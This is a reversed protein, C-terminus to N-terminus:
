YKRKSNKCKPRRRKTRGGVINHPQATPSGSFSTATSALGTTPTNSSVGGRKNRSTRKRGGTNGYGTYNSTTNNYSNQPMMQYSSASQTKDKNWWNSVSNKFENISNSASNTWSSLDFGGKMKRRNKPM